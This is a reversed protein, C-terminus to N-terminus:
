LIQKQVHNSISDPLMKKEAENMLHVQEKARAKAGTFSYTECIHKEYGFRKIVLSKNEGDVRINKYVYYSFSNDKKAWGLRM